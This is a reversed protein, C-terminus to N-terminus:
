LDEVRLRPPLRRPLTMAFTTGDAETSAVRMTGGHAVVIQRAIYMGIGLSTDRAAGLSEQAALRVLPDFVSGIMKAPIVPGKNNVAVSVEQATSTLRV